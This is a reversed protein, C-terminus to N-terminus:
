GIPKIPGIASGIRITEQKEQWYVLLRILKEAEARHQPLDGANDEVMARPSTFVQKQQPKLLRERQLRKLSYWNREAFHLRSKKTYSTQHATTHIRRVHRVSRKDRGHRPHHSYPRHHEGAWQQPRRREPRQEELLYDAANTNGFRIPDKQGQSHCGTIM